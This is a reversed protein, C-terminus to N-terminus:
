NERQWGIVDLRDLKIALSAKPRRRATDLVAIVWSVQGDVIVSEDQCGVLAQWSIRMGGLSLLLRGAVSLATNRSALLLSWSNIVGYSVIDTAM